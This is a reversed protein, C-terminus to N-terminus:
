DRPGFIASGVRVVTAGEEVAVEFDHSMGMSLETLPRALVGSANLRDRLERLRRFYPRVGEPDEFYPPVAMLGVLRVNPSRGLLGAIAAVEEERAGTKTSEGALDVEIFAEPRRGLEGALRDVREALKLSDITQLVDFLEVARRAKNGQLHGILHWRLGDGGAVDPRKGEAEQVRSEGVDTVGAAAAEGVYAAPFTKTVACLTVGGPGRGVRAGAAAIRDLIRRIRDAITESRM